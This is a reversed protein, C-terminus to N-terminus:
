PAMGAWDWENGTQNQWNVVMADIISGLLTSRFMLPWDTPGASRAVITQVLDKNVGTFQIMLECTDPKSQFWDLGLLDYELLREGTTVDAFVVVQNTVALLSTPGQHWTGTSPDIACPHALVFEEAMVEGPRLHAKFAAVAPAAMSEM